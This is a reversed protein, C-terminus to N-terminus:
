YKFSKRRRCAATLIVYGMMLLLYADAPNWDDGTKPATLVTGTSDVDQYVLAYVSFKDTAFTFYGNEFTGDLM